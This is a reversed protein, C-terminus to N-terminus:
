ARSPARGAATRGGRLRADAAAVGTRTDRRYRKSLSQRFRVGRIRFHILETRRCLPSRRSGAAGGGLRRAGGRDVWCVGCWCGVRPRTPAGRRGALVRGGPAGARGRRAVRSSGGVHCGSSVCSLDAGEEEEGADGDAHGRARRLARRVGAGGPAAVVGAGLAVHADRHRGAAELAPDVVALAELRLELAVVAGDVELVGVVLGVRLDALDLVLDGAAGLDEHDRGDVALGEARGELVRLALADRDDRVVAEDVARVGDVVVGGEVVVLDALQLALEDLLLEVEVVRGAGERELGEGAAGVVVVGAEEEAAGPVDELGVHLAALQGHGRALRGGRALVPLGDADEAPSGVVRLGLHVVAQLREVRAALLDLDHERGVVAEREADLRREGAGAVRGAGVPGDDGALVGVLGVDLRDERVLLGHGDPLVGPREAVLDLLHDALDHLAALDGDVVGLRVVVALLDDRREEEVRLHDHLVVHLLREDVRAEELRGVDAACGDGGPARRGSTRWRGSRSGPSAISSTMRWIVPM